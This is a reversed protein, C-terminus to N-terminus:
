DASKVKSWEERKGEQTVAERLSVHPHLPKSYGARFLKYVETLIWGTRKIMAM